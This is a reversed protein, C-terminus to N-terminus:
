FNLQIVFPVTKVFIWNAPNYLGWFVVVALLTEAVILLSKLRGFRVTTWQYAVSSFSTNMGFYILLLVFGVKFIRFYQGSMVMMPAGVFVLILMKEFSDDSWYTLMKKNSVIRILALLALYTLSFLAAGKLSGSSVFREQVNEVILSNVGITKLIVGLAQGIYNSNTVSLLVSSITILFFWYKEFSKSKINILSFIYIVLFVLGLTHFGSALVFFVVPLLKLLLNNSRIKRDLALGLVIFVIMGFDRVQTAEVVFFVISFFVYFISVSKTFTKVGIFLLIFLSLMLILRFSQYDLGLYNAGKVLLTYAWEFRSKGTIAVLNYDNVYNGTDRNHVVDTKGALVGLYVFSLFTVWDGYKQPKIWIYLNILVFIIYIAIFM